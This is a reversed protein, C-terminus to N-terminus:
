MADDVDIIVVFFRIPRGVFDDSEDGTEDDVADSSSRKDGSETFTLWGINVHTRRTYAQQWYSKPFPCLENRANNKKERKKGRETTSIKLCYYNYLKLASVTNIKDKSEKM